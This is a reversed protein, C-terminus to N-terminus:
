SIAVHSSNLRTSKRDKKTEKNLIHIDFTDATWALPSSSVINVYALIDEGEHFTGSYETKGRMFHRYDKQWKEINPKLYSGILRKSYSEDRLYHTGTHDIQFSEFHDMRYYGQGDIILTDAVSSDGEITQITFQPMQDSYSASKIYFSILIVSTVVIFVILKWYKKM